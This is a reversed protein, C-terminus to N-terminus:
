VSILEDSLVSDNETSISTCCLAGNDCVFVTFLNVVNGGVNIATTGTCSSVGFKGRVQDTGLKFEVSEIAPTLNSKGCGHGHELLIEESMLSLNTSGQDQSSNISSPWMEIGNIRM